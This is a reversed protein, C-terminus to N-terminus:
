IKELAEKLLQNVINPNAKGKSAKMVQGVLFGIAQTRGGKYDAVSKPNNAIVENVLSELASADSIQTFGKEKIIKEPEDGTDFMIEFVEKAQNANIKGQALQELLAALNRASVPRTALDVGKTRICRLFEGMIWNAVTKPDAGLAVAEDFLEATYRSAVIIDSDSEPLGYQEMLRKKRAEPMEPLTGRIGEIYEKSLVIPPLDPDPFYRYDVADEKLRMSISVGKDDDWGRTEQVVRGGDEILDIQRQAEYEVARLVARFSNMNKVEVRTGFESSGVPRVSVNADCRMSGQEMKVDSVGAYELITRLTEGYAKAEEPSRMDPESVIEILPVSGRNDDALSYRSGAIGNAGGHLLKGADAEIHIQRIRVRKKGASTEIDVYGNKAIPYFMQTIQYSSPLDPYFYNKRDFRSYPQIECNLALAAKVAYEVAKRNVVPLAGPLALCEPCIHRNPEPNVEASCSCFLKTKTKLEVHCEMGVVIEYQTM